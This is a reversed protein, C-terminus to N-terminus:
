RSLHSEEKKVPHISKLFCASESWVCSRSPVAEKLALMHVICCAGTTSSCGVSVAAPRWVLVHHKGFYLRFQTDALPEKVTDCLCCGSM